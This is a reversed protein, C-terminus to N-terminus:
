IKLVLSTLSLVCSLRGVVSLLMPIAYLCAVPSSIYLIWIQCNWPSENSKKVLNDIDLM